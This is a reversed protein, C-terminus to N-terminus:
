RDKQLGSGVLSSLPDELFIFVANLGTIWKRLDKGLAEECYLQEEDAQSEPRQEIRNQEIRNDIWQRWM